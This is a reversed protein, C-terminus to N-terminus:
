VRKTARPASTATILQARPPHNALSFSSATHLVVYKKRIRIYPHSPLKGALIRCSVQKELRSRDLITALDRGFWVGSGM